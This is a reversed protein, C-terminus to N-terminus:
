DSHALPVSKMMLLHITVGVAVCLLIVDLWWPLAVCGVSSGITLWLILLTVVMLKLPIGRGSRYNRIIGGAWSRYVLWDYFRQSGRGYCFAALLFFPTAPLIPLLVGMMGLAICVSGSLIWASKTIRRM